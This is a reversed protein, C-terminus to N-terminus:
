THLTLVSIQKQGYRFFWWDCSRQIDSCILERGILLRIKLFRGTRRQLGRSKCIRLGGMLILNKMRIRNNHKEKFNMHVVYKGCMIRLSYM